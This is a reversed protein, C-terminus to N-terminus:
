RLTGPKQAPALKPKRSNAKRAALPVKVPKKGSRSVKREDRSMERNFAEVARRAREALSRDFYCIVPPFNILGEETLSLAINQPTEQIAMIPISDFALQLNYYRM